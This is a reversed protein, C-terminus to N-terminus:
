LGLEQRMSPALREPDTARVTARRPGHDDQVFATMTTSCGDSTVLAGLASRCGAGTEALLQREAEVAARTNADDLADLLTQLSDDADAEICLAAQAPAPVMEDLSFRQSISDSRGLRKLGAEALVVADVEMGVKSLRTPVNGRIPVVVIDPRLLNLQAARRPSGTGVTAGSKLDDLRAGCLVDWPAERDPYWQMLEAPGDTPLDKCSHVAIDARDDIVAQQVAKVFAGMETLATVPSTRDLDGTTSIEVLEIELDPQLHLAREAVWRAQTMALQSSRTAIRLDSM